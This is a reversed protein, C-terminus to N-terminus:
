GRMNRTATTTIDHRAKAANSLTQFKRSEQQVAQQLALFQQNQQQMDSIMGSGSFGQTLTGGSLGALEAEELESADVDAAPPIVAVITTPDPEVVQVGVSEPLECRALQELAARPDRRLADRFSPDSAAAEAVMRELALRSELFQTALDNM